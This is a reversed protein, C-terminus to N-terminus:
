LKNLLAHHANSFQTVLKPLENYQYQNLKKHLYGFKLCWEDLRKMDAKNTGPIYWKLEHAMSIIKRRMKEAKKEEPDLSKLHKILAIAESSFLATSTDTRGGTFGLVMDMKADGAIGLKSCLAGIISLQGKNLTKSGSM